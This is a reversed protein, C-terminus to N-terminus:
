DHDCAWAQLHAEEADSLADFEPDIVTVAKDKLMAWGPSRAPKFTADDRLGIRERQSPKMWSTPNSFVDNATVKM